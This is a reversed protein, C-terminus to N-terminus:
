HYTELSEFNMFASPDFYYFAITSYGVTLIPATSTLWLIVPQGRSPRQQIAARERDVMSVNVVTSVPSLETETCTDETTDTAIYLVAIM